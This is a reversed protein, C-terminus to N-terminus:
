AELYSKVAERNLTYKNGLLEVALLDMGYHNIADETIEQIIAPADEMVEAPTEIRYFDDYEQGYSVVVMETIEGATTHCTLKTSLTSTVMESGDGSFRSEKIFEVGNYNIVTKEM